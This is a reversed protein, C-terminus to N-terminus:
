SIMRPQWVWQGRPGDDEPVTVICAWNLQSESVFLPRIVWEADYFARHLLPTNSNYFCHTLGINESQL